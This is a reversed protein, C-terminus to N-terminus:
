ANLSAARVIQMGVAKALLLPVANGIQRAVEVKSGVFRFDSPFTQLLAGERLSITRLQAPHGFQGRTFSDFRATITPAVDNWSMRGYVNRHGIVSADVKHCENLLGVPLHDRGQGPKIARLRKKNIESLRDSRHNPIRPHDTGDEPPPPLHGIAEKVTVKKSLPKPFEFLPSSGDKREGIVFVRRRRQPVGYDQADLINIHVWYGLSEARKVVQDFIRKGRHGMIGPVNEMLFFKPNVEDILKLYKLVLQNREDVDPGVRQMSFGQCPPGGALLFLEGRKMKIKKLLKGNLMEDIGVACAEHKFYKKNMKQSEICKSDIDFSLLVNFGAKQLGLSLGGVGAFCDVCTFRSKKKNKSKLGAIVSSYSNSVPSEILAVNTKIENATPLPSLLETIVNAAVACSFVPPVAEGIQKFVSDFTGVFEFGTPFSQLLAAERM